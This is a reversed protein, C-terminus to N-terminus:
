FISVKRSKLIKLREQWDHWLEIVLSKPSQYHLNLQSLPELGDLTVCSGFVIQVSTLEKLYGKATSAGVDKDKSRELFLAVISCM